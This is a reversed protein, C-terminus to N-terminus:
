LQLNQRTCIDRYKYYSSSRQLTCTFAAHKYVEFGDSVPIPENLKHNVTFRRTAQESQNSNKM